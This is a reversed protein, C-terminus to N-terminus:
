RGLERRLADEITRDLFAYGAGELRAPVVKQSCLLMEDILQSGLALKMLPVPAPLVAPRHLVRGLAKAYEANSSPTPGVANFPGDFEPTDLAFLWMHAAEELGVWPAWQRGSGVRGGVGLKFPLLQSKLAGGGRGQVAAMRVHITRIGADRAPQAAAEWAEVVEALFGDGRRADDGLLEEGRDGYWGVASAVAFVTPPRELEALASALFTTGDVRSARISARKDDTWRGLLSEGALHVVADYAGRALADRDLEGAAPNWRVDLPGADGHRVLAGVEDGRARLLGVISSGIM